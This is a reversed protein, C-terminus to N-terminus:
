GSKGLASINLKYKAAVITILEPSKGDSYDSTFETSHHDTPRSFWSEAWM